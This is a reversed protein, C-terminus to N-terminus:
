RGGGFGPAQLSSRGLAMSGEPRPHVEPTIRALHTTRATEEGRGEGRPLPLITALWAAFRPDSFCALAPRANVPLRVIGKAKRRGSAHYATAVLEGFTLPKKERNTKMVHFYRALPNAAM